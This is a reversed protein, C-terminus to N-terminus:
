ATAAPRINQNGSFVNDPDFRGKVEALRDYGEGFAARVRDQGEDGVFNLYTCGTAWPEFVKHSRRGWTVQKVDDRPDEWLAFPHVIWTADRQAMPTTGARRAVEGGWPFVISQSPAPM